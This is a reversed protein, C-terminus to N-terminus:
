NLVFVFEEITCLFDILTIATRRFNGITNQVINLKEQFLEKTHITQKRRINWMYCNDQQQEFYVIHITNLRTTFLHM